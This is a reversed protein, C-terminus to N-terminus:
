RDSPADTLAPAAPLGCLVPHCTARPLPQTLNRNRPGRRPAARHRARRGGGGTPRRLPELLIRARDAAQDATLRERVAVTAALSAELMPIGRDVLRVPATVGRRSRELYSCALVDAVEEIAGRGFWWAGMGATKIANWRPDYDDLRGTACAAPGIRRALIGIQKTKGVNDPGSFAITVSPTPCSPPPQPGEPPPAATQPM